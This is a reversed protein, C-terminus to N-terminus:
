NVHFNDLNISLPEQNATAATVQPEYWEYYQAQQQAMIDQGSMTFPDDTAPKTHAPTESIAPQSPDGNADPQQSQGSSPQNGSVAVSMGANANWTGGDALWQTSSLPKQIGQSHSSSGAFQAIQGDGNQPANEGAQHSAVKLNGTPSADASQSFVTHSTNRTGLLNDILDIESAQSWPGNASADIKQQARKWNFAREVNGRVIDAITNEPCGSARLNAIFLRYDNGSDLQHWRFPSPQVTAQESPISADATPATLKGELMASIPSASKKKGPALALVAGILLVNFLISVM